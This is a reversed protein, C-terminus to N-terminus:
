FIEKFYRRSVRLHFSVNSRKRSEEECVLEVKKIIEQLKKIIPRFSMCGGCVFVLFFVIGVVPYVFPPLNSGGRFGVSFTLAYVGFAVFLFLAGYKGSGLIQQRLPGAPALAEDVKDCFSTWEYESMAGSLAGPFTRDISISNGNEGTGYGQGHINIRTM